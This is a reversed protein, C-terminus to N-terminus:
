LLPSIGQDLDGNRSVAAGPDLVQRQWGRTPSDSCLEPSRKAETGETIFHPHYYESQVTTLRILSFWM